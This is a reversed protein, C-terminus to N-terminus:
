YWCSLPAPLHQYVYVFGGGEGGNGDEGGGVYVVM